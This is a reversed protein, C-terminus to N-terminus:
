INFTSRLGTLCIAVAMLALMVFMTMIAAKVFSSMIAWSIVYAIVPVFIMGLRKFDHDGIVIARAGAIVIALVGIVLLGAAICLGIIAIM